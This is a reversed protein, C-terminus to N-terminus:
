MCNGTKSPPRKRSYFYAIHIHIYHEPDTRILNGLLQELKLSSLPWAPPEYHSDDRIQSGRTWEAWKEKRGM